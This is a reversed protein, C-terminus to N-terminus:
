YKKGRCGAGECFKSASYVMSSGVVFAVVDEAGRSGRVGSAEGVTDGGAFDEEVSVVGDGAKGTAITVGLTPRLSCGAVTAEAVGLFAGLWGERVRETVGLERAEHATKAETREEETMSVREKPSSEGAESKERVSGCAFSDGEKGKGLVTEAAVEALSALVPIINLDVGM